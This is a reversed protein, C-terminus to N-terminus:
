KTERKEVELLVAGGQFERVVRKPQVEDPYALWVYVSHAEPNSIIVGERLVLVHNPKIQFRWAM